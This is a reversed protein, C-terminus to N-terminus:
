RGRRLVRGPHAGTVARGAYVLTGNVWVRDIGESLAHPDQPTARDIVTGPDFLV